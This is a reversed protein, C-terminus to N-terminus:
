VQALATMLQAEAMRISAQRSGILSKQAQIQSDASQLKAEAKDHAAKLKDVQSTAVVGRQHLEQTRDLDLKADKLAIAADRSQAGASTLGAQASSLESRARDIAAEQLIVNSEAVSLEAEAQRMRAAFNSPDIRAIVQGAAVESNFDVLLDIVQGSVQSGVQVTVVASLTGSSAVATRLDGREAKATRYAVPAADGRGDVYAAGAAAIALTVLGAIYISRKRM